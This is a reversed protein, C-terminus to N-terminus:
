VGFGGTTVGITFSVTAAVIAGAVLLWDRAGWHVERAYSPPTATNIGRAEMALALTTGRRISLVLLSFAQGCVRASSAIPGRGSGLGRARRAMELTSWDDLSLRLLRFAALAGLVFRRPLRWLHTLSDAIETADTKAVLAVAPIGIALIRLAIAGALWLSGQSASILGWTFYVEGSVRGYLLTTVASFLSLVLLPAIMRALQRATFRAFGLAVFDVVLVFAAAVPSLTVLLSLGLVSAAVFKALPNM